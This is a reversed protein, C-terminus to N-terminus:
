ARVLRISEGAELRQHAEDMKAGIMNLVLIVPEIGRWGRESGLTLMATGPSQRTYEILVPPRREVASLVEDLLKVAPGLHNVGSEGQWGRAIGVTAVSTAAVERPVPGLRGGVQIEIIPTGVKGQEIVRRMSGMMRQLAVEGSVGERNWADVLDHVARCHAIESPRLRIDM